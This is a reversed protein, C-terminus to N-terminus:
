VEAAQQVLRAARGDLGRQPMDAQVSSKLFPFLIIVETGIYFSQAWAWKGRSTVQPGYTRWLETCNDKWSVVLKGPLSQKLIVRQPMLRLTHRVHQVTQLKSRCSIPTASFVTASLISLVNEIIHDWFVVADQAAAEGSGRCSYQRHLWKHRINLTDCKSDLFFDVDSVNSQVLRITMHGTQTFMAICARVAKLIGGASTSEPPDCLEADKFLEIQEEEATRVESSPRLLDWLMGPLM